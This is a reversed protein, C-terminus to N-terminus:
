EYLAMKRAHEEGERRAEEQRIALQAAQYREDRADQKAKYYWNVLLGVLGIAIGFLIGGESSALWGLVTSGAGIFGAKSGASAMVADFHEQQM